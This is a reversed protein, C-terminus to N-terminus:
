NKNCTDSKEVIAVLVFLISRIVHNIATSATRNAVSEIANSDRGPSTCVERITPPMNVTNVINAHTIAIPWVRKNFGKTFNTPMHSRHAYVKRSAVAGSGNANTSGVGAKQWAWDM